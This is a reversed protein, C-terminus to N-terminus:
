LAFLNPKWYINARPEFIHICKLIPYCPSLYLVPTTKKVPRPEAPPPQVTSSESPRLPDPMPVLTHLANRDVAIGIGFRSRGRVEGVPKYGVLLSGGLYCVFAWELGPSVSGTVTGAVCPAARPM